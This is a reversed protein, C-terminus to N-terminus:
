RTPTCVHATTTSPPARYATSAGLTGFTGGASRARGPRSWPHAAPAPTLAPEPLWPWACRAAGRLTRMYATVKVTPGGPVAVELEHPKFELGLEKTLADVIARPPALGKRADLRLTHEAGRTDLQQEAILEPADEKSVDLRELRDYFRFTRLADGRVGDGFSLLAADMDGLFPKPLPPVPPLKM